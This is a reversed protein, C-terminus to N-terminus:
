SNILSNISSGSPVATVPSTGPVNTIQYTSPLVQLDFTQTSSSFTFQAGPAAVLGQVNGSQLNLQAAVLLINELPTMVISNQPALSFACFPLYQSGSPTNVLGALGVTVVPTGAPRNNKLGISAAPVGSIGGSVFSGDPQFTLASGLPVEGSLAQMQITTNVAINSQSFVYVKYTPTYSIDVAGFINGFPVSFWTPTGVSLQNPGSAGKYGLLTYNNAQLEALVAKQDSTTFDFDMHFTTM